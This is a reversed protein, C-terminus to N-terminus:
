GRKILSNIANLQGMVAQLEAKGAPTSAYLVTVKKGKKTDTVVKTRIKDIKGMLSKRRSQLDKIRQPTVTKTSKSSGGGSRSSGGGSRSVGLETNFQRSVNEAEQNAVATRYKMDERTGHLALENSYAAQALERVRDSLSSNNIAIQESNARKVENTDYSRNRNLQMMDGKIANAWEEQTLGAPVRGASDVLMMNKTDAANQASLAADAATNANVYQRNANLVEQKAQRSYAPDSLFSALSRPDSYQYGLKALTLGGGVGGSGTSSGGSRGGSGGRTSGAGSGRRASGSAGRVAQTGTRTNQKGKAPKAPKKGKQKDSTLLSAGLAGAGGVGGAVAVKRGRSPGTKKPPKTAKPPKKAAAAAAKAAQAAKAAERQAQAFRSVATM